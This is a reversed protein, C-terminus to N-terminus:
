GRRRTNKEATNMSSSAHALLGVGSGISIALMATRQRGDLEQEKAASEVPPPPPSAWRLRLASYIKKGVFEIAVSCSIFALQGPLTVWPM